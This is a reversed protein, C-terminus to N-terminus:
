VIKIIIQMEQILQKKLFLKKLIIVLIQIVLIRRKKIERSITSKNKDVAEAINKLKYNLRLLQDILLRDEYTLREKKM